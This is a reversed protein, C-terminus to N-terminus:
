TSGVHWQFSAVRHVFTGLPNDVLEKAAPSDSLVSFLFLTIMLILILEGAQTCWRVSVGWAVRRKLRTPMPDLSIQGVLPMALTAQLEVVSNIQAQGRLNSTRWFMLTGCLLALMGITLVSTGSPRGGIQRVLAAPRIVGTAAVPSEQVATQQWAVLQSFRQEAAERQQIAVDYQQRLAQYEPSEAFITADPEAELTDQSAFGVPQAGWNNDQASTGASTGAVEQSAIAASTGAVERSAVASTAAVEGSAELRDFHVNLAGELDFRAKREYHRTQEAMWKARRVASPTPAGAPSVEQRGFSIQHVLHDVLALSWALEPGTFSVRFGEVGGSGGIGELKVNQFVQSLRKGSLAVNPAESSIRDVQCEAARVANAIQQLSLEPVAQQVTSAVPLDGRDSSHPLTVESTVLYGQIPSRWIMLGVFFVTLAVVAAGYLPTPLPSPQANTTPMASQRKNNVM